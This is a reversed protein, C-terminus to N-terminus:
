KTLFPAPCYVYFQNFSSHICAIGFSVTLVLHSEGSLSGNRLVADKRGTMIQLLVIGFNFVDNAIKEQGTKEESKYHSLNFDSIKAGLKENLLIKTLKIDGHCIKKLPNHHLYWLGGAIGISINM